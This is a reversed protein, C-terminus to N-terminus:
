QEIMQSVRNCYSSRVVVDEVERREDITQDRSTRIGHVEPYADAERAMGGAFLGRVISGEIKCIM